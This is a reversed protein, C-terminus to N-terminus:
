IFCEISLKEHAKLSRTTTKGLVDDFFRSSLGHSPRLIVLDESSVVHGQPLDKAPYIARRFSEIHGNDIEIAVPKKEEDGKLINIVKIDEILELVENRTLSVKHDRFVKGERDDTFHYELVQAGMAVAVKLANAGETHDSYGMTTGTLKNLRLMVQLNAASKPIPYMSTCQLVSLYNSDNYLSNCERLYEVTAIVEEETSLGTSLIIPKGRQAVYKLLPWALLDGSGIKYIPNYDDVWEIMEIDWISAMFRKGASTIMKALEIYQARSLEFKKFHKHRDPSEIPNVLTNGSYIQFKIFDSDSEIALQTLKKAYEFDGEHNGGIEAIMLPGHKGKFNMKKECIEFTNILQELRINDHEHPLTKIVEKALDFDYQTDIAVQKGAAKRCDHNEIFFHNIREINEYLYSTVHEYDVDVKFNKYIDKYASVKVVEVSMGKPFTRKPVNSVFDVGSVAIKISEELLALNVFLNDGNIRVVYDFENALSASLFREAVNTLSGRYCTVSEKKCFSQLLDDDEETSTALVIHNVLKSKSLSDIIHKLIEKDEILKLGKGPLRKSSMRALIIVGVNM